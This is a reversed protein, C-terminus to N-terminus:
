TYNHWIERKYPCFHSQSFANSVANCVAVVWLMCGGFSDFNWIKVMYKGKLSSENACTKRFAWRKYADIPLYTLLYTLLHNIFRRRRYLILTAKLNKTQNSEPGPPCVVLKEIAGPPSVVSRILFTIRHLTSRVEIVMGLITPSPAYCASQLCFTHHKLSDTQKGRKPIVFNTTM